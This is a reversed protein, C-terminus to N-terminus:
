VLAAYASRVRVEPDAQYAAIHTAASIIGGVGKGVVLLGRMTKGHVEAGLSHPVVCAIAVDVANRLIFAIAFQDLQGRRRGRMSMLGGEGVVIKVVKYGTLFEVVDTAFVGM